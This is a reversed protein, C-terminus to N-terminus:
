RRNLMPTMGFTNRMGNQVPSNTRGLEASVMEGIVVEIKRNGQSDKTEKTEARESSNNVVTVTVNPNNANQARVGLSGDPGRSLPMIAEPGAEGMLGTGKAFPFTTPSSVITNTFAGGKAFMQIGSDWVGGKAQATGFAGTLSMLNDMANGPMSSATSVQANVGGIAGIISGLIGAGGGLGKWMDMMAMRMELRILDALMSEILSGFDAKGTMVFEALADGMDEFGKKFVDNYGKQKETMNTMLDLNKLRADALKQAQTIQLDYNQGVLTQQAQLNAVELTANRAKAEAIKIDLDYEARKKDLKLSSVRLETEGTIEAVQALKNKTNLEDQSILGLSQLYSYRELELSTLSRASENRTNDLAQRAYDIDLLQQSASIEEKRAALAKTRNAQDTGAVVDADRASGARAVEADIQSTRQNISALANQRDTSSPLKNLLPIVAELMVKEANLKDIALTATQKELELTDLARIYAQESEPKSMFDAGKYSRENDERLKKIAAETTKFVEENRAALTDMTEKIAISQKQGVLGIIKANDAVQAAFATRVAESTNGGKIEQRFNGTKFANIDRNLQQIAADNVKRAQIALDGGGKKNAEDVARDQESQLRAREMTMNLLIMSNNLERTANIGSIQLDIAQRELSANVKVSFENKPLYSAVTKGLANAAAAGAAVLPQEILKLSREVTNEFTTNLSKFIGNILTNLEEKRANGGIEYARGAAQMEKPLAANQLSKGKAITANVQELEKRYETLQIQAKALDAYAEPGFAKMADANKILQSIAELATVPDKLAKSMKQSADLMTLGLKSVPDLTGKASKEFEKVADSVASISTVTDAFDGASKNNANKADELAKSFARLADKAETSNIDLDDFFDELDKNKTIAKITSELAQKQKPDTLLKMSQEFSGKAAAGVKDSMGYGFVDKIKDMGRDFFSAKTTAQETSEAVAKFSDSLNNLATAKAQLSEPTIVDNYRQATLSAADIGSNLTGLTETFKEMEKSNKSFIGQLIEFTAIAIGVYFFAGSLAGAFRGVLNGAIALAGSFRTVGARAVSLKENAIEDNMKKWAARTGEIAAIEATNSVISKSAYSQRAREAGRANSAAQSFYGPPKSAQKDAAAAAVVYEENAVKAEKIARVLQGYTGALITNKKSLSDLYQLEKETIDQIPRQEDLINKTKKSLKGRAVANLNDQAEQVKQDKAAAAADKLAKIEAAKAAAVRKASEEAAKARKDALNKADEASAKLANRYEGIVPMVQSFLKVAMLGIGAFILETNESLIKAIPAVVKNIISLIQQATDKLKALLLDYPNTDINIESFKQQGEALVANAFAMRREFSNLSAESRGMSKAYDKVAQDVRTFLGLEDLLEPELKTIGRTLRSVADSMNLGLAQSAKKAVEGLQLFQQQSMGSSMAKATAEMSERLSIAGGSAKAFDKALSGMAVGSAAGLQDMGKVMNDTNMAQSLANYAATVAFLNAAYTAYLRVLGGLGQAQNAFDRASAGTRGASGRAVGYETVEAGDPAYAAALAGRKGSALKQSKELEKNLGKAENTRAKITGAQDQVSLNVSVTAGAM